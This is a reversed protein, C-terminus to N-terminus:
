FVFIFIASTEALRDYMWPHNKRTHFQRTRTLSVSKRTPRGTKQTSSVNKTNFLPTHQASKKKTNFLPTHKASPKQTSCLLRWIGHQVAPIQGNGSKEVNVIALYFKFNMEYICTLKAYLSYKYCKYDNIMPM